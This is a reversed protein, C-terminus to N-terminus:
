LHLIVGIPCSFINVNLIKIYIIYPNLASVVYVVKVNLLLFLSELKFLAFPSSHCKELSFIFATSM